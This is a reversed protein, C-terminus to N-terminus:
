GRKTIFNIKETPPTFNYFANMKIIEPLFFLLIIQSLYICTGVVIVGKRYECAIHM